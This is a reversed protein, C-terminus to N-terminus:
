RLNTLISGSKQKEINLIMISTGQQLGSLTFNEMKLLFFFLQLRKITSALIMEKMIFNFHFIM